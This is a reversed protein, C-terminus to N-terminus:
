PTEKDSCEYFSVATDGYTKLEWRTLSGFRGPAEYRSSHEWVVIASPRVLQGSGLHTMVDDIEMGYPPDALVLDYSRTLRPLVRSVPMCWLQARSEFRSLALNRRITACAFSSREVLDAHAAGRSLAEVALAGSGSYLDLVDAGMVTDGVVAYIAERVKDSTPRTQRGRPLHLHLGRSSGAIVRTM